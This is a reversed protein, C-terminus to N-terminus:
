NGQRSNIIKIAMAARRRVAPDTANLLPTIYTTARTDRLHKLVGMSWLKDTRNSHTIYTTMAQFATEEQSPTYHKVDELVEFFQARRIASVTIDGSPGPNKLMQFVWTLDADSITGTGELSELVQNRRIYDQSNMVGELENIKAQESLPRKSFEVPHSAPLQISIHNNRLFLLGFVACLVVFSVLLLIPRSIKM